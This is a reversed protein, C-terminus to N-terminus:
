GSSVSKPNLNKRKSDSCVKYAYGSASMNSEVRFFLGYEVKESHPFPQASGSIRRWRRWPRFPLDLFLFLFALFGRWSIFVTLPLNDTFNDLCFRYDSKIIFNQHSGFCPDLNM